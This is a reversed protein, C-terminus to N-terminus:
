SARRTGAPCPLAEDIWTVGPALPVSCKPCTRPKIQVGETLGYRYVVVPAPGDLFGRLLDATCGHYGVGECSTVVGGPLKATWTGNCAIGVSEAALSIRVGKAHQEAAYGDKRGDYITAFDDPNLFASPPLSNLERYSEYPM